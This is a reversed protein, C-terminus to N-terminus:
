ALTMPLRASNGPLTFHQRATSWFTKSELGTLTRFDRGFGHVVAPTGSALLLAVDDPDGLPGLDDAM